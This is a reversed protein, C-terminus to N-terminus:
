AARVQSQAPKKSRGTDDFPAVTFVAIGSLPATSAAIFRCDRHVFLVRDPGYGYEISGAAPEAIPGAARGALHSREELLIRGRTQSWLALVPSGAKRLVAPNSTLDSLSSIAHRVIKVDSLAFLSLMEQAAAEYEIKGAPEPSNANGRKGARLSREYAGSSQIARLFDYEAQDLMGHDMMWSVSEPKIPGLESAEAASVEEEDIGAVRSTGQILAMDSFQLRVIVAGVMEGDQLRISFDFGCYGDGLKADLLDQRFREVKGSGVCRTGVFALVTKDRLSDAGCFIWGAVRTKQAVEIAGRIM